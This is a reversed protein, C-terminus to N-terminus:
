YSGLMFTWSAMVLIQFDMTLSGWFATLEELLDLKCTSVVIEKQRKKGRERKMDKNHCTYLICLGTGDELMTKEKTLTYDAIRKRIHM